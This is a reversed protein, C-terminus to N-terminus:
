ANLCVTSRRLLGRVAGPISVLLNMVERTPTENKISIQWLGSDVCEGGGGRAFQRIKSFAKGSRAEHM